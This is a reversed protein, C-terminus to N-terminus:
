PITPEYKILDPLGPFGPYGGSGPPAVFADQVRNAKELLIVTPTSV